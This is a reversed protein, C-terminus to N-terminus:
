PRIHPKETIPSTGSSVLLPIGRKRGRGKGGGWNERREGRRKGMWGGDMKRRDKRRYWERERERGLFSSLLKLREV